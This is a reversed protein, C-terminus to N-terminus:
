ETLTSLTSDVKWKTLCYKTLISLTVIIILSTPIFRGVEFVFFLQNQLSPAELVVMHHIM